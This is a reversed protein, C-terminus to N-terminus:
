PVLTGGKDSSGVVQIEVNTTATPVLEESVNSSSTKASM